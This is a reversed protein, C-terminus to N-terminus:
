QNLYVYDCRVGRYTDTWLGGVPGPAQQEDQLALLHMNATLAFHRVAPLHQNEQGKDASVFTVGDPLDM